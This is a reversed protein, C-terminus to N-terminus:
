GSYGFKKLLRSNERWKERVGVWLELYVPRNLFEEIEKRALLGIRKLAQGQKGILIRRQTAREIFIAARIYDKGKKREKFEEIHVTTSYPIEQDYKLFIKERIIEAVFFREPFTSLEEEPYFPPSFPLQAVTNKLLGDLGDGNLASIPIIEKFLYNKHYYNIIPLLNQKKILDIKNVLLFVPKSQFDLSNLFKFEREQFGEKSGAEIMYLILDADQIAKHAAALMTEQLKYRPTLLGPTDLFIIQYDKKSLIGLVNQRTTQPKDTVISLKFDLLTNTLTSKGCNPRGIITVYGAKYQRYKEFIDL